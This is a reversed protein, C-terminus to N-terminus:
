RFVYFNLSNKHIKSVNVTLYYGLDLDYNLHKFTSIPQNNREEMKAAAKREM